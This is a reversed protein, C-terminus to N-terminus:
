RQQLEDPLPKKNLCAPAVVLKAVDNIADSFVDFYKEESLSVHDPKNFLGKKIVTRVKSTFGSIDEHMENRITDYCEQEQTTAYSKSQPYKSLKMSMKNDIRALVHLIGCLDVVPLVAPAPPRIKRM